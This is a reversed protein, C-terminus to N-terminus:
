SCTVRHVPNYVTVFDDKKIVKGSGHEKITRFIKISWGQRPAQPTCSGGSGKITSPSTYAFRSSADAEVDVTKVGLIRAHVKGGELYMDLVVPKDTNNTFKLDISHYDLTTERGEPYRSIYRSHAKHEDLDFGAFFAANFLTTSVQSVGGGYDQKMQGGSIVGAPKYGSSATRPGLTKNLSFQEGPQLVTGSVTRTSVKLNTDRGPSSAYPTSFDSVTDSLDLKEADETSFDAPEAGLTIAASRDDAGIADRVADALEGKNVSVGDRSPIVKPKGDVFEFSADRGAEGVDPNDNMVTTRFRKDFVLKGSKDFSGHKVIAEPTVTIEKGAEVDGEVNLTVDDELAPEAVERKVKEADETTFDPRQVEDKVTVTDEMLWQDRIGQGVAEPDVHTGDKSPTLKVSKKEFALKASKPDKELNKAVAAASTTLRSDDVKLEPSQDTRNNFREYLTVPNLTFGAVKQASAAYDIGVGTDKPSVKADGNGSEVKIKIDEDAKDKLAEELVGPIEDVTKNAVDVGAISTGALAARSTLFAVVLYILALGFVGIGVFKAVRKM